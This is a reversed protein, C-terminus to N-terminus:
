RARGQSRKLSSRTMGTRKRGMILSTGTETDKRAIKEFGAEELWARVESETYTDGSRTVALMNLAFFAGFPPNVRDEDMIFDQIIIQGSDRLAFRAKRFLAKNQEPSNMHIIASLFVADFGGPLANVNYDGVVVKIKNSLGEGKIYKKTLPVVNSLDFVTATINKHAKVFAMAYAGSGGGVDLVRSVGSLDIMRAVFAADRRGREHMTAIFPKLWKKGRDNLGKKVMSRGHRIVPTLASWTDWMNVYHMVSGMYYPSTRVLYKLVLPTNRFQHGRKKLLGLGCLANMLRNTHREATGLESAVEYSSKAAKNIATFVGLECATLFIRSKQFALALDMLYQANMKAM